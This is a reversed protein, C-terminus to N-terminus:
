SPKRKSKRTTTMTPQENGAHASVKKDNSSKTGTVNTPETEGAEAEHRARLQAMEDVGGFMAAVNKRDRALKELKDWIASIYKKKSNDDGQWYLGNQWDIITQKMTMTGFRIRQGVKAFLNVVMHVTFAGNPDKLHENKKPIFNWWGYEAIWGITITPNKENKTGKSMKEEQKYHKNKKM